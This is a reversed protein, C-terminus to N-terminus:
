GPLSGTGGGPEALRVMACGRHLPVRLTLAGEAFSAEVAAAATKGPHVASVRLREAGKVNRVIVTAFTNAGGFM